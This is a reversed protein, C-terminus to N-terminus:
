PELELVADGNPMYGERGEQELLVCDFWGEAPSSSRFLDCFHHLIYHTPNLRHSQAKLQAHGIHGWALTAFSVLHPLDNAEREEGARLHLLM